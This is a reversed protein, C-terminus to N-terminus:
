ASLLLDGIRIEGTDLVQARIGGNNDYAKKFGKKNALKSPRECPECLEEGKLKLKGIYFIKGVLANLESPLIQDIVVNRRTEGPDFEVLGDYKLLRNSHDIGKKSILTIDRNKKPSLNSFAGAGLAYRDGDIGIGKILMVSDKKIMRSGAKACTYISHVSPTQTM